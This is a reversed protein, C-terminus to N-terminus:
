VYLIDERIVNDKTSYELHTDNYLDSEKTLLEDDM